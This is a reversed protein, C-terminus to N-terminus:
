LAIIAKTIWVTGTGYAPEYNPSMIKFYVEVAEATANTFVPVENTYASEDGPVLAYYVRAPEVGPEVTFAHGEGDYPLTYSATGGIPATDLSAPTVRLWGYEKTIAYNDAKTGELFSYEFLRMIKDASFQLFRKRKFSHKSDM